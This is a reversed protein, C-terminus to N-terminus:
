PKITNYSITRKNNSLILYSFTNSVSVIKSHSFSYLWNHSVTITKVGLYAESLIAWISHSQLWILYLAERRPKYTQGNACSWVANNNSDKTGKRIRVASYM